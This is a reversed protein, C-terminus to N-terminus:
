RVVSNGPLRIVALANTIAQQHADLLSVSVGSKEVSSMNTAVSSEAILDAVAKSILRICLDALAVSSAM